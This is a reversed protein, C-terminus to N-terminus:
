KDWGVMSTCYSSELSQFGFRGCGIHAGMMQQVKLTETKKEIKMKNRKTIDCTNAGWVCRWVNVCEEGTTLGKKHEDVLSFNSSPMAHLSRHIRHEVQWSQEKSRCGVSSLDVNLKYDERFESQKEEGRNQCPPLISCCTRSRKTPISM